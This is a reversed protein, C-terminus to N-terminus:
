IREARRPDRGLSEGDEDNGLLMEGTSLEWTADLVGLAAQRIEPDNAAWDLALEYYRRATRFKAECGQDTYLSIADTITVESNGILDDHFDDRYVRANALEIDGFHM